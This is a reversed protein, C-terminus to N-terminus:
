ALVEDNEREAIDHRVITTQVIIADIRWVNAGVLDV